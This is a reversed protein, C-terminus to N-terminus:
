GDSRYIYRTVSIFHWTLCIYKYFIGTLVHTKIPWWIHKWLAIFCSFSKLSIMPQKWTTLILLKTFSTLSYICAVYTTKRIKLDSFLIIKYFFYLLTRRAKIAQNFSLCPNHSNKLLHFSEVADDRTKVWRSEFERLRQSFEHNENNKTQVFLFGFYQHLIITWVITFIQALNNIERNFISAAIATERTAM